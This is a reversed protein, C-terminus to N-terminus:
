GGALAVLRLFMVRTGQQLDIVADLDDVTQEDIIAQYLGDGHAELATAVAQDPDVDTNLDRGGSVVSGTALGDALNEVTLVNVVRRDASRQIYAAVEARVIAEILAALPTPGATLEVVLEHEPSGARKRGAVAAEVQVTTTTTVLAGEM